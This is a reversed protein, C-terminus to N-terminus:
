KILSKLSLFFIFVGIVFICVALLKDEDKGQM